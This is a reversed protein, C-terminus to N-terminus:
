VGSVPHRARLLPAWVASGRGDPLLRLKALLVAGALRDAVLEGLGAVANYGFTLSRPM